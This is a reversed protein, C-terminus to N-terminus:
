IAVRSRTNVTGARMRCTTVGGDAPLRKTAIEAPSASPLQTTFPPARTTGATAPSNSISTSPEPRHAKASMSSVGTLGPVPPEPPPPTSGPVPPAPPMIFTPPVPPATISGPVPPAPPKIFTPPVLPVPVLGAAAIGFFARIFGSVEPVVLAVRDGPHVGAHSLGGSIVLAEALIDAYSM